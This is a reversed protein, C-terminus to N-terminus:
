SNVATEIYEAMDKKGALNLKKAINLLKRCCINKLDSEGSTAVTNAMDLIEGGRSDIFAGLRTKSCSALDKEFLACAELIKVATVTDMATKSASITHSSNDSSIVIEGKDWEAQVYKSDHMKYKHTDDLEGNLYRRNNNYDIKLTNGSLSTYEIYYDSSVSHKIRTNNIIDKVFEEFSKGYVSAEHVECVFATDKSDTRVEVRDLPYANNYKQGQIGWRYQVGDTKGDKVPKIAAYTGKHNIFIWGGEEYVEEFNDRPLWFHTFQVEGKRAVKHMGISVNEYQYYQYCNCHLDGVFYAHAHTATGPGYPGPHGEYILTDSGGAFQLSWPIEQQAQIINRRTGKPYTSTQPQYNGADSRYKELEDVHVVCGLSYTPTTYTYKEMTDTILLDDPIMYISRREKNAFRKGEEFAIDYIVDHPVYEGFLIHSDQVAMEPHLEDFEVTSLDFMVELMKFKTTYSMGAYVRSHAGTMVDELSDTLIDAYLYTLMDYALKKIEPDKTVAYLHEFTYIDVNYYHASDYELFGRKLRQNVWTKLYSKYRKNLEEGTIGGYAIGDPFTEGTLVATAYFVGKHNESMWEDPTPYRVGLLYQKMDEFSEESANITGKLKNYINIMQLIIFDGGDNGRGVITDEYEAQIGHWKLIESYDRDQPYMLMEGYYVPLFGLGGVGKVVGENYTKQMSYLYTERRKKLTKVAYERDTLNDDYANIVFDFSKKGYEGVLIIRGPKYARIGRNRSLNVLEEGEKISWKVENVIDLYRSTGDSYYAKVPTMALLSFADHIPIDTEKNEAELRELVADASTSATNNLTVSVDDIYAKLNSARFSFYGKKPFSGSYYMKTEDITFLMQCGSVEVSVNHWNGDEINILPGPSVSIRMHPSDINHSTRYVFPIGKDGGFLNEAPIRRRPLIEFVGAYQNENIVPKDIKLRFDIRYDKWEYDGFFDTTENEIAYVTNGNEEKSLKDPNYNMYESLPKGDEFGELLVLGDTKAIVEVGTEVRVSDVLASIKHVGTRNAKFKGDEYSFADDYTIKDADINVTKVGGDVEAYFHVKDWMVISSRCSMLKIDYFSSVNFVASTELNDYKVTIHKEGPIDSSLTGDSVKVGEGFVQADIKYRIGEKTVGWVTYEMSGGRVIGTNSLEAEIDTFEIKDVVEINCEAIHEKGTIIDKASVKFNKNGIEDFVINNESDADADFAKRIIERGQSDEVRVGAKQGKYMREYEPIVKIGEYESIPTLSLNKVYVDSSHSSLMIGGEKVVPLGAINMSLEDMTAYINSLLNGKEDYASFDIGSDTMVGKLHIWPTAGGKLIGLPKESVKAYYWTNCADSGSTRVIALRDNIVTGNGHKKTKDNYNLASVYVLRYQTSSSGSSRLGISFVGSQAASCSTQMIDAEIIFDSYGDGALSSGIIKSNGSVSIVQEGNLEKLDFYTEQTLVDSYEKDIYVTEDSALTISNDEANVLVGEALMLVAVLLIILIRKM